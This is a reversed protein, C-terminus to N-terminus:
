LSDKRVYELAFTTVGYFVVDVQINLLHRNQYFIEEELIKKSESLLDLSRYLHQLKIEKLGVYRNQHAHTSLKSQM